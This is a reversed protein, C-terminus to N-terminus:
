ILMQQSVAKMGSELHKMEKKIQSKKKIYSLITENQDLSDLRMRIVATEIAQQEM